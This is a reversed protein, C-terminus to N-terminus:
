MSFDDSNKFESSSFMDGTVFIVDPSLKNIASILDANNKGFEMSHLDTIQLIKYGDFSSPLNSFSIEERTVQFSSNIIKNKNITNLTCIFIPKSNDPIVIMEDYNPEVVINQKTDMVGWKGNEYITYYATAFTKEKIIEKDNLLEKIGIVFMIIVLIAIIVATVKKLNLKPEADYRRGRSRSMFIREENHINIQMYLIDFDSQLLCRPAALHVDAIIIIPNKIIDGSIAANRMRRLQQEVALRVQRAGDLRQLALQATRQENAVVAAHRQGRFTFPQEVADGDCHFVDLRALRFNDGAPVHLLAADIHRGAFQRQM